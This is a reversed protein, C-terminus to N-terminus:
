YIHLDTQVIGLAVRTLHLTFVEEASRALDAAKVRREACDPMWITDQLLKVNRTCLM